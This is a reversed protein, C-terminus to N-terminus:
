PLRIKTPPCSCLPFKSGWFKCALEYLPFYLSQKSAVVSLKRRRGNVELLSCIHHVYVCMLDLNKMEWGVIIWRKMEVRVCAGPHMDLTCSVHSPQFSFPHVIMLHSIFSSSIIHEFINDRFFPPITQWEIIPIKSVFIRSLVVQYCMDLQYSYSLLGSPILQDIRWQSFIKASDTSELRGPTDFPGFLAWRRPFVITHIVAIFWPLQL